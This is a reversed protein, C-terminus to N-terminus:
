AAVHTRRGSLGIRATTATVRRHLRRQWTQRVQDSAGPWSIVGSSTARSILAIGPSAHSSRVPPSGKRRRSMRVTKSATRPM